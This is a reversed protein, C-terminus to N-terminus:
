FFFCLIVTVGIYFIQYFEVNGRFLFNNIKDVLSSTTSSKYFAPLGNFLNFSINFVPIRVVFLSTFLYWNKDVIFFAIVGFLTYVLAWIWHKISGTTGHLIDWRRLYAEYRAMAINIFIFIFLTIYPLM